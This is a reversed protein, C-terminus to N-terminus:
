AHARRGRHGHDLGNRVARVGEETAWALVLLGALWGAAAGAMPLLQGTYHAPVTLAIWGAVVVTVGLGPLAYLAARGVAAGAERGTMGDPRALWGLLGGWAFGAIAGVLFLPVMTALVAHGSLREALTMTAVLYGGALVGGAMAASVATRGPQGIGRAPARRRDGDRRTEIGAAETRM